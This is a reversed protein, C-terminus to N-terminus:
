LVVPLHCSANIDSREHADSEEPLTEATKRQSETVGAWRGEFNSLLDDMREYAPRRDTM